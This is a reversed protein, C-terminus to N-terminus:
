TDYELILQHVKIYSSKSSESSKFAEVYMLESSEHTYWIRLLMYYTFKNLEFSFPSPSSLLGFFCFFFALGWLGCNSLVYDCYPVIYVLRWIRLRLFSSELLAAM